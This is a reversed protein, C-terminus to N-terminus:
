TGCAMMEVHWGREECELIEVHWIKNACALLTSRKKLYRTFIIKYRNTVSFQM